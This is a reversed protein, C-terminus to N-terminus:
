HCEFWDRGIMAEGDMISINFLKPGEKFAEKAIEAAREKYKNPVQFNVEDHYMILPKYPIEEKELNEMILMCAASCTIKELAQLLYVLLKHPSDVYIRTGVKSLIFGEGHIAKTEDYLAKLKNNLKEFGPVAKIFGDKFKNGKAGNMTGFIYSWLKGGSAGFLFAYLIRKANSRPVEHIIGMEELVKTAASANFNHIDENLLIHTFEDNNLYVALGRAQNGSSDAGIFSWGDYTKFLKRFSEGYPKDPSPINCIISHRTRMSPTGISFCDGHLNGKDDVNELWTKLINLRSSYVTFTTYLAADGGLFEISSQTIKPSMRKMSGTTPDRKYNWEDPKWGNRYLFLKVDQNSTLSLPKFDVRSFEGNIPRKELGEKPDIGFWNATHHNYEGNKKWKPKKPTVEGKVKDIAVCKYGLKKQLQETIDTITKELEEKLKYAAEVDFPWGEYYADTYFRAVYHEAKIYHTVSPFKEKIPKLEELLHNYVKENLEVDRECYPIMAEHFESFDTYDGKPYDFFKGWAGLSHGKDKFRRFDLIQSLILTDIFKCDKKFKFGFVELAKIDFGLINHGIVTDIEPIYDHFKECDEKVLSKVEGKNLEKFSIMWLKTMKPLLNDTEIDLVIKM